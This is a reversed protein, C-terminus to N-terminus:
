HGCKAELKHMEIRMVLRDHIATFALGAFYVVSILAITLLVRETRM